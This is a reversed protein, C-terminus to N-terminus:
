QAIDISLATRNPKDNVIEAIAEVAEITKQQCLARLEPYSKPRGRPNVSPAGVRMNPNGRRRKVPADPTSHM